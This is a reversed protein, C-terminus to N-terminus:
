EILDVGKADDLAIDFYDDWEVIKVIFYPKGRYTILTAEDIDNDIDCFMRKTTNLDYGYDKNLKEKSYPQIDVMLSKIFVYEEEEIVGWENEIAQLEYLKVEKNYFM